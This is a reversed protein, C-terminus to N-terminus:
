HLPLKSDIQQITCVGAFLTMHMGLRELEINLEWTDYKEKDM